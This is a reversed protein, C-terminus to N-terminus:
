GKSSAYARLWEVGHEVLEVEDVDPGLQGLEVCVLGRFGHRDLRELVDGVPVVGEGYRVSRPGVRDDVVRDLPEVDKLHVIRIWPALLALAELPDDGVRLANATDFCVGLSEDGVRDLVEVLEAARLDAHNEVALVVGLAAARETAVTLATATREVDQAVTTPNRFRPSAAVCRVLPSEAEAARDLWLLLDSLADDSGGFELGHPHGWALVLELPGAAERLLRGDTGPALFCTELSIGDVHLGRAHELVDFTGHRFARRPSREGPRVEGLLRHYSYSDIGICLEM